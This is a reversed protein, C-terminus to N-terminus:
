GHRFQCINKQGSSSLARVMLSHSKDLLSSFIDGAASYLTPSSLFWYVPVNQWSYYRDPYRFYCHRFDPKVLCGSCSFVQNTTQFMKIVNKIKGYISFLCGLQSESWSKESPYTYWWGSILQCITEKPQFGGVLISHEDIKWLFLGRAYQGVRSKWSTRIMSPTKAWQYWWKSGYGYYSDM